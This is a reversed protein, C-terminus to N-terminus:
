CFVRPTSIVGPRNSAGAYRSVDTSGPWRQQYETVATSRAPLSLSGQVATATSIAFGEEYGRTIRLLYRPLAASTTRELMSARRQTAERKGSRMPGCLHRHLSGSKPQM